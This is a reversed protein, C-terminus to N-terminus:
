EVHGKLKKIRKTVNGPIQKYDMTRAVDILGM